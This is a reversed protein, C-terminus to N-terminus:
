SFEPLRCAALGAARQTEDIDTREARFFIGWAKGGNSGLAILVEHEGASAAFPLSATDVLAPNTGGPDHYLEQGDVWLKVPGDYGLLLSLSMAEVCRMRGAFYLLADGEIEGFRASVNAFPTALEAPEFELADLDAPYALGELDGASPCLRSLRWTGVFPTVPRYLLRGFRVSGGVQAPTGGTLCPSERSWTDEFVIPLRGAAAREATVTGCYVIGSQSGPFAWSSFFHRAGLVAM